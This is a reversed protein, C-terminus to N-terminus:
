SLRALNFNYKKEKSRSKAWSVPVEVIIKNLKFPIIKGEITITKPKINHLILNINEDSSTMM